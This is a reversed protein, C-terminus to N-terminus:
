FLQFLCCVLNYNKSYTTQLNMERVRKKGKPEQITTRRSILLFNTYVVSNHVTFNSVLKLYQTYLCTNM